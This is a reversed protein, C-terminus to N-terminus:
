VRACVKFMFSKSLCNLFIASNFIAPMMVALWSYVGRETALHAHADIRYLARLARPGRPELPRLVPRADM